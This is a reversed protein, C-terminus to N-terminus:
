NTRTGPVLRLPLLPLPRHRTPSARVKRLRDPDPRAPMSSKGNILVNDNVFRVDCPSPPGAEWEEEEQEAAEARLVVVGSEGAQM